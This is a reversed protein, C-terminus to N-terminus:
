LGHLALFDNQYGEFDVLSWVNENTVNKYIETVKKQVDERLELDDMRIRGDNDVAVTGEGYLRERFFRNMQAFCDEHIVM